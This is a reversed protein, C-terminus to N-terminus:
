FDVLLYIKFVNFKAPYKIKRNSFFVNQPYEIEHNSSQLVRWLYKMESYRHFHSVFTKDFM